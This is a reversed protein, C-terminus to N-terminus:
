LSVPIELPSLMLAEAAAMFAADVVFRQEADAGTFRAYLFIVERVPMRTAAHAAWAYVLAQNRYVGTREELDRVAVADTKFDVIVIGGDEEFFLDIRGEALGESLGASAAVDVPLAVTFPAELLMRPSALARAIVPAQLARAAITAIEGAREALGLEDAVARAIQAIDADRRLGSRELVLHVASGFEAACGRRVSDDGAGPREWEPKLASATRITLPRAGREILRAHEGSWEARDAVIAAAGDRMTNPAGNRARRWVPLELAHVPIAAADEYEGEHAGARRLWDGICKTDGTVPADNKSIFPVVLRDKARTSAVYLLRLEEALGHRQEDAEAVDYGPTRFHLEKKGLKLHLTRAPGDAIVRTRDVRETNMNALVVVPFELGKSAHITMIRVVDDTEESIVADTEDATRAMNEKLWHVFGRLGGGSAEAFARAQDIIKLLNAAVQDGQPQLMAFEVLRTRDLVARILEPLPSTHRLKALERLMRMADAVDGTAADPLAMYDFKWGAHRHLLLDEDSCGFAASRLAAVAAVGDTPDDIARLVAVMERVEQRLFFTRGGEHRYPVDARAFAEEYMELESRSPIIVVVDRYTAPRMPEGMAGRVLWTRDDVNRRIIAALRAGEYRRLASASAGKAQESDAIGRIVTVAGADYEPHHQLAIYEPQVGTEQVFLQGFADNVWGIVQESSRFNQVIRTPEGGFVHQKVEDYMGIDARRFRYISQKPDGVVFLSGPRLRTHRWDAAIEDQACLSVILEAQLPDTDQFEDVLICRYKSQFYAVEANGRVLDRAWLLLDDFDAKGGAQRRTRYQAVFGQLWFLLRSTARERMADTAANLLVAIAKLEAKVDRCDDKTRWNGQNGSSASPPKCSAITRCLAADNDITRLDAHLDITRRLEKLAGDDQNVAFQELSRLTAVHAAIAALVARPDVEAIEVTALPLLERHRHLEEAAERVKEFPLALNLADILADPPEDAAMEAGIWERYEMEFALQGALDDLVEFGPDLNAEVPRERLLGSAFAHITEIHAHNLGRLAAELRGRQTPDAADALASELGQRVRSALEAAAKETFTIVAVSRVDAHGTALIEVIRDVLVTTKGTGAGAEVCMNAGVNTRIHDRAAQDVPTFAGAITM